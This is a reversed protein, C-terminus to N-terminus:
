IRPHLVQKQHRHSDPEKFLPGRRGFIKALGTVVMDDIHKTPGIDFFRVEGQGSLYGDYRLVQNLIAATKLGRGPNLPQFTEAEHFNRM